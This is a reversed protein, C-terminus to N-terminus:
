GMRGVVWMFLLALALIILIGLGSLAIGFMRHEKSSGAVVGGAVVLLLALLGVIVFIISM